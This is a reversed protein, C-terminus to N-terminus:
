CLISQYDITRHPPASSPKHSCLFSLSASSALNLPTVFKNSSHWSLSSIMFYHGRIKM